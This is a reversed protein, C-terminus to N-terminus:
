YRVVKLQQIKRANRITLLYIGAPQLALSLMVSREGALSREMLTIGQLDTLTIITNGSFDDGKLEVMFLGDTPNPWARVLGETRHSTSTMVEPPSAPNASIAGGCFPGSPAIRALLYGGSYVVTGPKLFISKGAILEVSGESYIEFYGWDGSTVITDLAHFCETNGWGTSYYELLTNTPIFSYVTIIIPNSYVPQASGCALSSILMCSVTDGNQLTSTSFTSSAFGAPIGNVLWQLNPFPGADTTLANFEISEGENIVPLIDSSIVIQPIVVATTCIEDAGIDPTVPDRVTADFDAIVGSVPIAANMLVGNSDPDLHLDEPSVFAPSFSVSHVDKGPNNTRWNLLSASFATNVQNYGVYSGPASVFLNNYDSTLNLLSSNFDVIAFSWNSDTAAVIRNVLINNKLTVQHNGNNASITFASSSYLKNVEDNMEVTNYYWHVPVKITSSSNISIMGNVSVINSGAGAYGNSIGRIMNNNIVLSGAFNASAYIGVSIGSFAIGGQFVHHVKNGSVDGASRFIYIGMASGTAASNTVRVSDIVNGSIRCNTQDAIVIAIGTGSSGEANNGIPVNSGFTCGSIENDTAEMFYAGGLYIGTEVGDIVINRFINHSSAGSPSNISTLSTRIGRSLVPRMTGWAMNITCNRIINHSAGDDTGLTALEYGVECFNDSTTGGNTVNIGDFILHDAGVLRIAVDNGPTGSANVTVPGGNALFVIPSGPGAGAVPHISFMENYVGPAVLFTVGGQGVGNQQLAAVALTFGSYDPNMGGITRIGSLPNAHISVGSLSTFTILPVVFLFKVRSKLYSLLLFINSTVM